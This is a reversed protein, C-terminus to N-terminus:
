PYEFRDLRTGTVGSANTTSKLLTRVHGVVGRFGEALDVKNTLLVTWGDARFEADRNQDTHQQEVSFHHEGEYQLVIRAARYGIDGSSSHPDEPDRLIQLEPEPLGAAILALRLKTEPPSDAGVRVLTLAERAAVIGRAGRHAMLTEKLRPITSWPADRGEFEPRPRRVLSDGLVVLEDLTLSAMLDVFVREPSSVRIGQLDLVEGEVLRPWHHVVDVDADIALHRTLGSVHLRQAGAFRSPLPLSYFQAAIQHSLWLVESRDCVARLLEMDLGEPPNAGRLQRTSAPEPARRRRQPQREPHHTYIGRSRREIDRARLRNDPVGLARAQTRSFTRGDLEDPLPTPPRM